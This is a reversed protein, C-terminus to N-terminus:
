ALLLSLYRALATLPCMDAFGGTFFPSRAVCARGREVLTYN